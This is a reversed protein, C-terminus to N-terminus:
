CLNISPISGERGSYHGMAVWARWFGEVWQMGHGGVSLREVPLLCIWQHVKLM